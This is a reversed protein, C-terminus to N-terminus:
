VPHSMRDPTEKGCVDIGYKKCHWPMIKECWNYSETWFINSDIKAFATEGNWDDIFHFNFKIM